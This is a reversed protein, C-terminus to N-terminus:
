YPEHGPCTCSVKGAAADYTYPQKSVPCTNIQAAEKIADLSPPYSGDETELKANDILMRLQRLNSQCAMSVARRVAKGPVSSPALLPTNSTPAVEQEAEQQAKRAGASLNIYLLVGGLIIVVVIILEVFGVAGRKARPHRCWAQKM